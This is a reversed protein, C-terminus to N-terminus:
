IINFRRLSQNIIIRLTIISSFFLFDNINDGMPASIIINTMFIGLKIIASASEFELGLLLGRILNRTSSSVKYSQVKHDKSNKIQIDYRNSLFSFPYSVHRFVSSILAQFVSIAVITVALVDLITTILVLFETVIPLFIPM